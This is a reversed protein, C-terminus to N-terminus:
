PSVVVVGVSPRRRAAGDIAAGARAGLAVLALPMSSRKGAHTPHDFPFDRMLWLRDAMRALDIFWRANSVPGLWLGAGHARFRAAWPTANSFPPNVWVFGHWDRALGDDLRTLKVEAPVHDGGEVPSAPDLDFREDLADFVWRPTFREDPEVREPPVVFLSM